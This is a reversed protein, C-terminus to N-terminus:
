LLPPSVIGIPYMKQAIKRTIMRKLMTPPTRPGAHSYPHVLLMTMRIKIKRRPHASNPKM